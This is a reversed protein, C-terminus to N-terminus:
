TFCSTSELLHISNDKRQAKHYDNNGGQMLNTKPKNLAIIRSLLTSPRM